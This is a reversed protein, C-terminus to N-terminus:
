DRCADRRERRDERFQEVEADRDRYAQDGDQRHDVQAADALASEDEACRRVDIQHCDESEDGKSSYLGGEAQSSSTASGSPQNSMRRANAEPDTARVPVSATDFPTGAKLRGSTRFAWTTSTKIAANKPTIKTPM